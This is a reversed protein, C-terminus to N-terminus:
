FNLDSSHNYTVHFSNYIYELRIKVYYRKNQFRTKVRMLSVRKLPKSLLIKAELLKM